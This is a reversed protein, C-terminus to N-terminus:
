KGNMLEEKKIIAEELTRFRYTKGKYHFTYVAENSMIKGEM